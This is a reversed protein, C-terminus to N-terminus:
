ASLGLYELARDASPVDVAVHPRWWGDSRLVSLVNVGAVKVLYNRYIVEAGFSRNAGISAENTREVVTIAREVGREDFAFRYEADKVLRSVGRRRHDEAVYTGCLLATGPEVPFKDHWHREEPALMWGQGGPEGTAEEVAVFATWAPDALRGEVTEDDMRTALVSAIRPDLSRLDSVSRVTEVRYGDAGPDLGDFSENPIAFVYRLKVFLGALTAPLGEEPLAEVPDTASGAEAGARGPAATTPM